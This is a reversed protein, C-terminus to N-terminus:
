LLLESGPKTSFACSSISFTVPLLGLTGSDQRLFSAPCWWWWHVGVVIEVLLPLPNAELFGHECHQRLTPEM